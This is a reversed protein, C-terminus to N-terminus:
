KDENLTKAYERLKNMKYADVALFLSYAAMIIAFISTFLVFTKKIM